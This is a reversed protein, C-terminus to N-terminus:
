VAQSHCNKEVYFLNNSFGSFGLATNQPLQFNESINHKYVLDVSLHFLCLYHLLPTVTEFTPTM